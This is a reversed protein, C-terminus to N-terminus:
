SPSDQSIHLRCRLRQDLRYLYLLDHKRTTERASARARWAEGGVRGGATLGLSTLGTLLENMGAFSGLGIYVAGAGLFDTVNLGLHQALERPYTHARVEEHLHRLAPIAQTDWLDAVAM